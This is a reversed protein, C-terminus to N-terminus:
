WTRSTILPGLQDLAQGGPGPRARPRPFRAGGRLDYPGAADLGGIRSWMLETARDLWPHRVGRAHLTGALLGTTILSAPRGDEPM